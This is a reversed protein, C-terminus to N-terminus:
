KVPVTYSTKGGNADVIITSGKAAVKEIVDWKYKELYEPNRRMAAGIKDIQEVQALAAANQNQAKLVENDAKVNSLEGSLLTLPVRTEEFTKAIMKSIETNIKEYNKIVDGYTPYRMFIARIRNRIPGTAFQSYIQDITIVSTRTDGETGQPTIQLFISDRQASDKPVMVQIRVDVTIPVGDATVIRHDNANEQTPGSFSEKVTTSTAECLVLQNYSGDASKAKIDVQGAELIKGVYGTPALVKGVYGPPIERFDNGGCGGLITAVVLAWLVLMVKKM